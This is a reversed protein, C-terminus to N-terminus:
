GATEAEESEATGGGSAKGRVSRKGLQQDLMLLSVGTDGAVKLMHLVDAANKEEEVQERVFWELEIQTAHDNEKVALDYLANIAATVKKEHDLVMAFLASPSSFEAPPKEVAELIVRGGRRHVYRFLKLAHELEEQWQIRLWTGIGPLGQSECYASMALYLYASDVEYKLQKNIATQMTASLM